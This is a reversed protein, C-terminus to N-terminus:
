SKDGLIAVDVTRRRPEFLEILFLRQWTGLDLRGNRVPAWTSDGFIMMEALHAVANEAGEDIHRYRRDLPLRDRLLELADEHISPDGETCTVAATTHRSHLLVVGERVGSAEVERAVADTIDVFELAKTTAVSIQRLVVM